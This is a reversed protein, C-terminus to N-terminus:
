KQFTLIELKLGEVREFHRMNFTVVSFGLSLATSGIILDDKRYVIGFTYAQKNERERWTRKIWEILEIETEPHTRGSFDMFEKENWHPLFKLADNTELGRLSIQEGKIM